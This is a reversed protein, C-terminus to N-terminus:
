EPHALTKGDPGVQVESHKTGTTVQAEYAVLTGSKTLSEVKKIMGKGAKEQLGTKVADPLTTLDVQEEVEMVQGDASMSVDKSHGDKMLEVEYLRKGGDMETAYGRVTAGESQEAATKQVAAPLDSKRMKKEQALALSSVTVAVVIVLSGIRM